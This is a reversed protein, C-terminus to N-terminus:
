DYEIKVSRQAICAVINHQGHKLMGALRPLPPSRAQEDSCWRLALLWLPLFRGNRRIIYLLYLFFAAIHFLIQLKTAAFGLLSEFIGVTAVDSFTMSESGHPSM